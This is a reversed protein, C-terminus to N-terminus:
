QVQVKVALRAGPAVQLPQGNKLYPQLASPNAWALSWGNAIAILTYQGPVVDPLTFTGDSDSQDRRFLPLNNAADQPVLVIMAGSFPRGDRMATGNVPAAGPVAIGRIQVNAAGITISRGAVKAGAAALKVLSYGATNELGMVYRGPRISESKFNFQGRDDIDSRFTEGTDPNDLKVSAHLPPRQAGEFFITGGVSPFTPAESVSIDMDGSLDIERYWGAQTVKGNISSGTPVEVVYHGPALGSVEIVGPSIWSAPANFVSDLYGDFIRQSINPFLMHGIVPSEAASGTRIRLHLSPEAHLTLDINEKDGATLQLPTADTWDTTGPYFTLPYTVDLASADQAASSDSSQPRVSQAYWPRASVAVYYTGPEIHGIRYHGQDDTQATNEPVTKQQGDSITTHFLRVTAYQIPDNNDDTIDGEVAADPELRFVLHETDLDTAVAIATAYNGHHEFSQVSFGRATAMLSYKGRKLGAFLFHGDPGTSVSSSVSREEGQSVPAIAVTASPVPQGTLSNVVTGGIRLGAPPQQAALGACLLMLTTFITFARNM